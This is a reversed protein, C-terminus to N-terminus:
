HDDQEDEHGAHWAEQIEHFVSHMATLSEGIAADDGNRAIDVFASAERELQQLKSKIKENDVKHPLPSDLWESAASAMPIANKKAPEVNASDKFPHFSEAMLLHFNDMAIWEEDAIANEKIQHEHHAKNATCAVILGIILLLCTKRVIEAKIM